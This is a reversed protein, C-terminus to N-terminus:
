RGESPLPVKPMELALWRQKEEQIEAMRESEGAGWSMIEEAHKIKSRMTICSYKSDEEFEPLMQGDSKMVLRGRAGCTVCGVSNQGDYFLEITSLHCYPCSGPESPGLYTAEDFPKGIQSVVNRALTKARAVLEPKLLVSGADLCHNGIFQDIIKAHLPYFLVHLSPLAMSYQDRTTSGCTMMFGLVRPKLIREDYKFNAFYPHGAEKMRLATTVFGADLFPGGIRDMLAKLFGPPQHSYTASSVIIADADLIANLAAGRDDVTVDPKTAKPDMHSKISGATIDMAGQLPPPNPPIVVSPVHLWSTTITPDHSTIETLATRLLIESNGQRQGNCLGLVHM